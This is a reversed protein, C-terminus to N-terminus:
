PLLYDKIFLKIKDKHMSSIKGPTLPFAGISPIIKDKELYTESKEGPYLVYAGKTNSIADKYTHM